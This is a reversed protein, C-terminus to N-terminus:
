SVLWTVLSAGMATSLVGLNAEQLEIGGFALTAILISVTFGIGAITGARRSGGLRGAAPAPRPQAPYAALLRWHDRGAQRGRIWDPHGLTPFTYAHALFSGSLM